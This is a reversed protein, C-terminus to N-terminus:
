LIRKGVVSSKIFSGVQRSDKSVDRNDGLVFYHDDPVIIEWNEKQFKNTNAKDLYPEEYEEGNIFLRGNRVEIKDNPLGILRKVITKTEGGEQEREKLVVVDFRNIKDTKAILSVKGDHLTPDMSPGKVWIITMFLNFVFVLTLIIATYTIYPAWTDMSKIQPRPKYEVDIGLSESLRKHREYDYNNKM